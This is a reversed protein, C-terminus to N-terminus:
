RGRFLVGGARGLDRPEGTIYEGVGLYMNMVCLIVDSEIKQTTFDLFKIIEDSVGRGRYIYM